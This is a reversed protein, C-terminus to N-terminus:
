RLSAAQSNNASIVDVGAACEITARFSKKAPFAFPVDRQFRARVPLAPVDFRVPQPDADQGEAMMHVVVHCQNAALPLPGRNGILLRLRRNPNGGAIQEISPGASFEMDSFELSIVKSNNGYDSEQGDPSVVASLDTAGEPLDVALSTEFGSASGDANLRQEAVRVWNGRVKANIHGEVRNPGPGAKKAFVKLSAHRGDLATLDFRAVSYDPCNAGACTERPPMEFPRPEIKRVRAGGPIQQAWALPAPVALAAAGLIFLSVVKPHSRM